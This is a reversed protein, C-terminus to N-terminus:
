EEKKNKEIWLDYWKELILRQKNKSLIGWYMRSEFTPVFGTVRESFRCITDVIYEDPYKKEYNRKPKNM